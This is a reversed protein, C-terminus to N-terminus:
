EGDGSQGGFYADWGGWAPDPELEVTQPVAREFRLVERTRYDLTKSGTEDIYFQTFCIIPNGIRGGRDKWELRIDSREVLRPDIGNASLWRAVRERQEPTVPADKQVVQISCTVVPHPVHWNEELVGHSVKTSSVEFCSDGDPKGVWTRVSARVVAMGDPVEVELGLADLESGIKKKSM